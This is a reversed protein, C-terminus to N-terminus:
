SIQHMLFALTTLMSLWLLNMGFFERNKLITGGTGLLREEHVITVRSSWSSQNLFQHVLPALYHTNIIVEEVGGKLLNELWYDLLPRGNIPVLCKPLRETLPLLRTGFGAALLLARM